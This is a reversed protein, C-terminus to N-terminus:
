EGGNISSLLFVPLTAPFCVWGCIKSLLPSRLFYNTFAAGLLGVSLGVHVHALVRTIHSDDVRLLLLRSESGHKCLVIAASQNITQEPGQGLKCSAEAGAPFSPISLVSTYDITTISVSSYGFFCTLYTVEHGM